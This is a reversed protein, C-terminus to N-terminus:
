VTLYDMIKDVAARFGDPLFTTAYQIWGMDPHTADYIVIFALTLTVAISTSVFVINWIRKERVQAKYMEIQASYSEVLMDLVARDMSKEPAPITSSQQGGKSVVSLTDLSIELASAIPAITDFTPNPVDGRLVKTITSESMGCKQALAAYTLGLERRRASLCSVAAESPYKIAKEESNPPPNANQTHM